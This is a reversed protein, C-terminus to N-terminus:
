ESNTQALEPYQMEKCKRCIELSKAFLSALICTENLNKKFDNGSMGKTLFKASIKALGANRYCKQQFGQWVM